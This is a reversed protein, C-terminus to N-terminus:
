ARVEAAKARSSLSRVMAEAIEAPPLVEHALGERTIFGPMGWVVSTEEDQAYIRAGHARLTRAGELGDKGMGTLVAACVDGGYVDVLSRFLVDVAPRCSNEREDQNLSIHPGGERHVVTMHLDGPAIYVTGPLAKLGDTAEVVDLACVSDLREALLHTFIPPMHQVVFVPAPLNRPLLPLLVGLANPGGTSSGIALARISSSGITGTPRPRREIRSPRPAPTPRACLARIRPVLESSIHAAAEEPSRGTPKMVYDNAGRALADLTTEAGRRTLSSFMVVPLRPHTKRLAELAQLGNMEPMEVDLVVADFERLNLKAVGIKGNAATAEVRMDDTADIARAVMRRAVISDDVVLVRLKGDAASSM